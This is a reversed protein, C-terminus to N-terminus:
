RWSQASRHHQGALLNHPHVQLKNQVIAGQHAHSALNHQPQPHASTINGNIFQLHQAPVVLGTLLQGCCQSMLQSGVDAVCLEM